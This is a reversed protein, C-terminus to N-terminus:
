HAVLFAEPPPNSKQLDPVGYRVIALRSLAM